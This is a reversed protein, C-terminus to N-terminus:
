DRSRGGVSFRRNRYRMRPGRLGALRRRTFRLARLPNLCGVRWLDRENLIDLSALHNMCILMDASSGALCSRKPFELLGNEHLVLPESYVTEYQGPPMGCLPSADSTIITRPVGKTRLVTRIFDPPLHHGDTIIMATLAPEALQPWLPNHHRHIQGPIGNGLHTCLTAGAQVATAIDAPAGFHHGLSVTIGRRVAARILTSIGALEPAVTLLRLAGGSWKIFRELLAVGAPQTHEPPHMGITGLNSTFFPGEMHIGLLHRGWRPHRMAEALIPLNREYIALPATILTPCYALTGRAVLHATVRHIDDLTLNSGTFDVGLAGNFQLDVFGIATASLAKTNM